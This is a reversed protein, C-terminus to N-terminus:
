EFLMVQSEDSVDDKSGVNGEGIWWDFIEEGSKWRSVADPNNILRDQYLKKFAKIFAKAHRPFRKAQHQRQKYYAMPCFLCGVRKWGEDYLSCYPLKRDRIFAWVDDDSWDIILHLFNKSDDQLCHEVMRRKSRGASEAWRVGTVVLRGSGGNEKYKKCCWRAHRLPFGNKILAKLFPEDPMDYAVDQHQFRIFHVLEPPDITTVSYHADFKVGAEIALQKIVISDKGGSFALYYGDDPEFERLRMIATDIQHQLFMTM